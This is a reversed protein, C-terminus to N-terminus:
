AKGNCGFGISIELQDLLLISLDLLIAFMEVNPTRNLDKRIEVVIKLLLSSHLKPSSFIKLEKLCNTAWNGVAVVKQEYFIYFGDGLLVRSLPIFTSALQLKRM